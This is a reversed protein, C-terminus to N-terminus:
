EMNEKFEIDLKTFNHALLYKEMENSEFSIEDFAWIGIKDQNIGYYDGGGLGNGLATLLSLPHLCLGDKTTNKEIYEYMDVYQSKTWNVLLLYKTLLPRYEMSHETLSYAKKHLAKVQKITLNENTIDEQKFDSAYDGVWAIQMPNKFIINAFSEVCANGIWSHETLKAMIYEPEDNRNLISRDYVKYENDKKTLINYYQGM